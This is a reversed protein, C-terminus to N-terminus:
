SNQIVEMIKVGLPKAIIFVKDKKKFKKSKSFYIEGAADIGPTHPFKKILDKNGKSILRDKYNINSYKVKIVVHNKSIESFNLQIKKEIITKFYNKKIELVSLRKYQIKKSTSNM